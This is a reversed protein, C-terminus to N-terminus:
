ADGEPGKANRPGDELAAAATARIREYNAQGPGDGLNGEAIARLADEFRLRRDRDAEMISTVGGDDPRGRQPYRDLFRRLRELAEIWGRRGPEHQRVLDILERDVSTRAADDLPELGIRVGLRRGLAVAYAVVAERHRDWPASPNSADAAALIMDAVDTDSLRVLFREESVGRTM